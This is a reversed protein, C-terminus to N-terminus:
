SYIVRSNKRNLICFKWPIMKIHNLIYLSIKLDANAYRLLFFIDKIFFFTIPLSIYPVTVVTFNTGFISSANDAKNKFKPILMVGKTHLYRLFHVKKLVCAELFAVVHRNSFDWSLSLGKQFIIDELLCINMSALQVLLMFVPLFPKAAAVKLPKLTTEKRKKQYVKTQKLRKQIM